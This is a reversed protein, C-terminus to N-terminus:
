LCTTLSVWALEAKWVARSDCCCCICPVATMTAVLVLELSLNIPLLDDKESTLRTPDKTLNHISGMTSLNNCDASGGEYKLMTLMSWDTDLIVMHMHQDTLLHIDLTYQM